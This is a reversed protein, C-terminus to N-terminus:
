VGAGPWFFNVGLPLKMQQENGTAESFYWFTMDVDPSIETIHDRFAKSDQALFQNKVFKNVTIESDDGDVAVVM